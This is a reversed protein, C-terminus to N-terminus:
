QRGWQNATPVLFYTVINQECAKLERLPCGAPVTAKGTMHHRGAAQLCAQASKSGGSAPAAGLAAPPPVWSGSRVGAQGREQKDHAREAAARLFQTSAPM